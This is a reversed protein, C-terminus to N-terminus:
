FGLVLVCSMIPRIEWMGPSLVCKIVQLVSVPRTKKRQVKWSSASQQWLGRPLESLFCALECVHQGLGALSM